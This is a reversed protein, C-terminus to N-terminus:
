EGLSMDLKSREGVPKAAAAAAAAAPKAVAGVNEALASEILDTTFGAFDKSRANLAM